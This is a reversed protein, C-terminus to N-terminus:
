AHQNATPIRAASHSPRTPGRTRRTSRARQNHHANARTVAQIAPCSNKPGSPNVCGDGPSNTSRMRAPVTNAATILEDAMRGPPLTVVIDDMVTNDPSFEVIDVSQINGGVSGFAQALAGLQGPADPLMVRILYSM